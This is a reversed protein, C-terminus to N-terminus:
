CDVELVKHLLLYYFKLKDKISIYPNIWVRRRLEPFTSKRLSYIISDYRISDLLSVQRCKLADLALVYKLGTFKNKFIKEFLVVNERAQLFRKKVADISTDRAISQENTYYYYYARDVYAVNQSHYLLQMTLVMDEGMNAVPYAEIKSYLSRRVLKNWVAWSARGLLCDFFLSPMTKAYCSKIYRTESSNAQFYDCIVVDSNTRQAEDYLDKYMDIAVWDDSDCHIIYDGKALQVGLRRVAPLGSNIPMRVIQVDWNMEAFRLQYQLLKSNLLNISNDPSSDDIFIFEIDKLSQAFLSDACREIYKEVGYVPIIVSLKPVSM